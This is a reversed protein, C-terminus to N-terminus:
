VFSLHNFRKGLIKVDDANLWNKLITAYVNKFDVKHKLDGDQLDNLDPLPNLVGKQKLGSGIFFMNNATGHDTGGSANQSVRRGFESFTTILVDNFRGNAKLDKVFSSVADNMETFLRQQQAGQNIHTDFSGLPYM